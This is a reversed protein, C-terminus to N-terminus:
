LDCQGGPHPSAVRLLSTLQLDIQSVGREYQCLIEDGVAVAQDGAVLTRAADFKATLWKRKGAGPLHEFAL